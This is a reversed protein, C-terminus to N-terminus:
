EDESVPVASGRSPRLPSRQGLSFNHLMLQHRKTEDVVKEIIRIISENETIIRKAFGFEFLREEIFFGLEYARTEPIEERSVEKLIRKFDDITKNLELNDFNVEIEISDENNAKELILKFLKEHEPEEKMASEWFEKAADAYSDNKAFREYVRAVAAEIRALIM